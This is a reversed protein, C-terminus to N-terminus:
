TLAEAALSELMQRVFPKVLLHQRQRDQAMAQAIGYAM